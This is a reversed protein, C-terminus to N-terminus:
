LEFHLGGFLSIGMLDTNYFEATKQNLANRVNIFISTNPVIQFNLKANVILKGSIDGKGRGDAYSPNQYSYYTYGTFFYPNLNISLKKPIIEYNAIVGGFWAPMGTDTEKQGIFSNINNQTPNAALLAKETNNYPSSNRLQVRQYTLYPRINVAKDVVWNVSITVGLQNTVLPINLTQFPQVVYTTGAVAKSTADGYLFNAYNKTHNYFIELDSQLNETLNSRYGIEIMDMTHLALNKNGVVEIALPITNDVVLFRDAYTFIINASRNARAYVARILNREDVKYNGSVQYSLSPKDPFNFIDVRIASLLRLRGKLFGAYDVRLFPAVTRIGRRGNFQGTKQVLDVYPTDDYIGQRFNIGPEITLGKKSFEYEILGDVTQFDWKQGLTGLGEEQTGKQYSFQASIKKYHTSIDGYVSKSTSTTLPTAFNESYAKQVRSDQAGFSAKVKIDERPQYHFFANYGYKQMAQEPSPYANGLGALQPINALPIYANQTYNYYTDQTRNRRQANGSLIFSFKDQFKYGLSGNNINTQNSGQQANAVAYWGKQEPLRTIINIVGSVANPGYMASTPGRVLEIRQIDNLDIPLTEWFTGGLYYNYTPRDDIMVLTTTNGAVSFLSNRQVNSGGRLHIDFNGNSQELVVLGPILRLAEMISVCGARLIDEKTIVSTSFPADFLRESKKSAISVKVNLVDEDLLKYMDEVKFRMLDPLSDNQAFAVQTYFWFCAIFFCRTIM